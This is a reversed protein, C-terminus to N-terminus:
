GAAAALVLRPRTAFSWSRDEAADDIQSPLSGAVVESRATGASQSWNCSRATPSNACHHRRAVDRHRGAAALSVLSPARGPQGARRASRVLCQVLERALREDLDQFTPSTRVKAAQDHVGSVDAARASIQAQRRPKSPQRNSSRTMARNTNVAILPVDRSHVPPLGASRSSATATGNRPESLDASQVRLNRRRRRFRGGRAANRAHSARTPSARHAGAVRHGADRTTVNSM